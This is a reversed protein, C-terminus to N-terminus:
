VGLEAELVRTEAAKVTRWMGAAEADRLDYRIAQSVGSTRQDQRIRPIRM